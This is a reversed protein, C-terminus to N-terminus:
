KRSSTILERMRTAPNAYGTSHGSEDSGGVNMGVVRGREDLVPAGSTGRGDFSKGIFVYSLGSPEVQTVTAPFLRPASASRLRAYMYVTQGVRPALRAFELARMGEGSDIVFVALDREAGARDMSRANPNDIYKSAVLTTKGDQMSVGTVELLERKIDKGSMQKELGAAPGFLHHPTVLLAEPRRALRLVFACGGSWSEDALHFTPKMLVNPPVRPADARALTVALFVAAGVLTVHLRM